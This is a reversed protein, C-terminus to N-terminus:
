YYLYLPNQMAKVYVDWWQPIDKLVTNKSSVINNPSIKKFMKSEEQTNFAEIILKLTTLHGTYKFIDFGETNKRIWSFWKTKLKERIQHEQEIKPNTTGAIIVYTGIPIDKLLNQIIGNDVRICGSSVAWTTKGCTGHIAIDPHWPGSLVIMWWEKGGYDSPM